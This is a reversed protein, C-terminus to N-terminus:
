GKRRLIRWFNQGMLRALKLSLNQDCLGSSAGWLADLKEIWLLECKQFSTVWKLIDRLVIAASYCSVNVASILVILDFSLGWISFSFLFFFFLFSRFVEM